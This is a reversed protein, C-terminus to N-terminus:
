ASGESQMEYLWMRECAPHLPAPMSVVEEESMLNVLWMAQAEELSLVKHKVAKRLWKPLPRQLSQAM